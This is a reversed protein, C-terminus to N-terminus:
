SKSNHSVYSSLGSVVSVAIAPVHNPPTVEASLHGRVEGSLHGTPGVFIAVSRLPAQQIKIPENAILLGVHGRLDPISIKTWDQDLSSGKRM